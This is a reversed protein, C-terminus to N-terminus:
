NPVGLNLHMYVYAMFSIWPVVQVGCLNVQTYVCEFAYVCLGNMIHWSNCVKFLNLQTNGLKFAYVCLGNMIHWSNCVKFLNLQTNGLTFAYVCLGNM